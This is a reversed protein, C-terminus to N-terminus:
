MDKQFPGSLQILHSRAVKNWISTSDSDISTYRSWQSIAKPTNGRAEFVLAMNYHAESLQPDLAIAQTLRDLAQSYEGNRFYVLALDNHIKANDADLGLAELYHEKAQSLKGDLFYITGLYQKLIAEEPKHELADIVPQYAPIDPAQSSGSRLKGILSFEFGGTPRMEGDSVRFKKTLLAFARDAKKVIRYTDIAKYGSYSPLLLLVALIAFHLRLPAAMFMSPWNATRWRSRRPLTLADKYTALRDKVTAEMIEKLIPREAPAVVYGATARIEEFERACITCKGLHSEVKGLEEEVLSGQFYREKLDAEIHSSLYDQFQALEASCKQCNKLHNGYRSYTDESLRKKAYAFLQRGNLCNGIM